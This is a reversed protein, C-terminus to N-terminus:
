LQFDSDARLYCLHEFPALATLDEAYRCASLAVEGREAVVDVRFLGVGRQFPGLIACDITDELLAFLYIHKVDPM